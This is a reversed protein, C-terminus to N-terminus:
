TEARPPLQISWGDPTESCYEDPSLGLARLGTVKWSPTLVDRLREVVNAAMTAPPMRVGDEDYFVGPEDAIRAVVARFADDHQWQTRRTRRKSEVAGVGPVELRREGMVALLCNEVEVYVRAADQKIDRLEALVLAATIPDATEKAAVMLTDLADTITDLATSM